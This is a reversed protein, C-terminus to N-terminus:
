EMYWAKGPTSDCAFLQTSVGLIIGYLYEKSIGINM